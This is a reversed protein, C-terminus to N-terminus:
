GKHFADGLQFIMRTDAEHYCPVTDVELGKTTVIQKITEIHEISSM